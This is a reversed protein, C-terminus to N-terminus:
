LFIGVIITIILCPLFGIACAWGTLSALVGLLIMLIFAPVTCIAVFVAAVILLALLFM